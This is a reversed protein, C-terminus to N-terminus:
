TKGIRPNERKRLVLVLNTGRARMDFQAKDTIGEM